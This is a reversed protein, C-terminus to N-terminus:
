VSVRQITFNKLATEPGNFLNLDYDAIGVAKKNEGYQWFAYSSWSAPLSPAAPPVALYDQVWLPCAAFQGPNNLDKWVRQKTYLLPMQGGIKDAVLKILQGIQLVRQKPKVTSSNDWEDEIDVSPLLDGPQPTYVSFFDTVSQQPDINPNCRVYAGRPLNLKALDAWYDKFNPDPYSTGLTADIHYARAFVFRPNLATLVTPWDITLSYSSIDIGFTTTM